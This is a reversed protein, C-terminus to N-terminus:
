GEGASGGAEGAGAEGAAEAAAAGEESKEAEEAAEVAEMEAGVPSPLGVVVPEEPDAPTAVDPPLRLDGVRITDGVTLGSIDVEINAPIDGPRCSVTLSFLHQEVLGDSRSVEQAEGLLHVPVDAEVVEDHRVVVFDVHQVSGAVPHRQIQRAMALHRAGDVDLSLLANLGGERSLAHRLARRDVALPQPTVGHGYLVAPIKGAARLRRASASGKSPRPEAALAVEEM